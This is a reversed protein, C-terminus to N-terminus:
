RIETEVRRRISGLVDSGLWITVMGGGLEFLLRFIVSKKRGALSFRAAVVVVMGGLGGAASHSGDEGSDDSPVGVGDGCDCGSLRRTM